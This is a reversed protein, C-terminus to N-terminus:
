RLLSGRGGPVEIFGVREMRRPAVCTFVEGESVAGVETGARREGSGFPADADLAHQVPHDADADRVLMVSRGSLPPEAVM